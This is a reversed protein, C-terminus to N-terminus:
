AFGPQINGGLLFVVEPPMEAPAIPEDDGRQTRWMVRVLEKVALVLNPPCGGAARGATYTVDYASDTFGASGDDWELVGVEDDLYLDDTAVATGGTTTVTVVTLLPSQTLTLTAGGRGPTVRETFTTPELPGVDQAIRAEAADIYGALVTEASASVQGLHAKMDPIDVVPM